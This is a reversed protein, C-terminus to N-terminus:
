QKSRAIKTSLQINKDNGRESWTVRVTIDTIRLGYVFTPFTVRENNLNIFQNINYNNIFDDLDVYAQSKCQELVYQADNFAVMRHQNYENILMFNIYATLLGLIAILLIASAIM